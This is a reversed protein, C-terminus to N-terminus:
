GSSERSDDQYHSAVLHHTLSEQDVFVEDCEPCSFIRVRHSKHPSQLVTEIGIQIGAGHLASDLMSSLRSESLSPFEKQLRDRLKKALDDPPPPTSRSLSAIGTLVKSVQLGQRLDLVLTCNEPPQEQGSSAYREALLQALQDAVAEIKESLSQGNLAPQISRIVSM